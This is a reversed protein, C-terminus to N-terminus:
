CNQFHTLQAFFSKSVSLCTNVRGKNAENAQIREPDRGDGGAPYAPRHRRLQFVASLYRHHSATGDGRRHEFLGAGGATHYLGGGVASGFRDRTHLAIWYGRLILAAFLLMIIGAGVLGLEECVIAFIFDNHEEPLFLFKQRSKGLGLGWLGAPASPLSARPFSIARIRPM